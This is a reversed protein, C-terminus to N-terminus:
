WDFSSAGGTNSSYHSGTETPHRNGGFRESDNASIVLGNRREKTAYITKSSGIKIEVTKSESSGHFFPKKSHVKIRDKSKAAITLNGDFGDANIGPLNKLVVKKFRKSSEGSDYGIGANGFDETVNRVSVSGIFRLNFKKFAIIIAGVLVFIIIVPEYFEYWNFVKLQVTVEGQNGNPDEARIVINNSKLGKRRVALTDPQSITLTGDRDYDNDCSVISYTLVDGDEDTFWDSMPLEEYEAQLLNYRLKYHVAKQIPNHTPTPKANGTLHVTMTAAAKGDSAKVQFTGNQTTKDLKVIDSGQSLTIGSYYSDTGLSYTLRDGDEDVFLGNLPISDFGDDSIQIVHEYITSVPKPAHNSGDPPNITVTLPLSVCRVHLKSDESLIMEFLARLNYDSAESVTPATFSATFQTGDIGVTVPLEGVEGSAPYASVTLHEARYAEADSVTKGSEKLRAILTVTDGDFFSRTGGDTELELSLNSNALLNISVDQDSSGEIEIHWIGKWTGKWTGDQPHRIKVFYYTDTEHIGRELEEGTFEKGSPDLVRISKINEYSNITASFEEVGFSPIPIPISLHGSSDLTYLLPESEIGEYLLRYFRYFTNPLDEASQVSRYIGGTKNALDKLEGVRRAIEARDIEKVLRSDLGSYDGNELKGGDDLLVSYILIHKDQCLKVASAMNKLSEREREARSKGDKSPLDTVGDSMLVIVSPLGNRGQIEELERAAALLASGIDTDAGAKGDGHLIADYLQQKKNPSSISYLSTDLPIPNKDDFVIAGAYNGSDTMPDLFEAVAQFRLGQPDTGKVGRLSGSGDVVFLINCYQAAVVNRQGAAYVESSLLSLALIMVTYWAILRKSTM